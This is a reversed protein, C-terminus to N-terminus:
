GVRALSVATEEQSRNRRLLVGVAACQVAMALALALCVGPLGLGSLAYALPLQVATGLLTVRLLAPAGGSGESVGGLAIFCAMLLLYPGSCRLFLVSQHAVGPGAGFATMIWPATAAFLATAALGLAGSVRVAQRGIDRRADEGAGRTHATHIAAAQRVAYFAMTAVYMVKYAIAYAAVVTVSVTNTYILRRYGRRAYNAWVATLNSETIEARHPDGEPAPHVQGMFDGDIVAHSVAAVRLLASVEWGVTTKGVGARGGILLVEARDM